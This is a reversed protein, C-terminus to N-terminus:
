SNARVLADPSLEAPSTYGSLALTEWRKVAFAGVDLLARANGANVGGTPTLRV